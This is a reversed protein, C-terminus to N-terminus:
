VPISVAGLCGACMAMQENRVCLKGGAAKQMVVSSLPRKGKSFLATGNMRWVRGWASILMSWHRSCSPRPTRRRPTWPIHHPPATLAPKPTRAIITESPPSEDDEKGIATVRYYYFADDAMYYKAVDYANEGILIMVLRLAAIGALVFALTVWGSRGGVGPSGAHVDPPTRCGSGRAPVSPLRSPMREHYVSPARRPM